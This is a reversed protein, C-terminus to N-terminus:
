DIQKEAKALELEAEKLNVNITDHKDIIDQMAIQIEIEKDRLNDLEDQVKELDANLREVKIIYYGM